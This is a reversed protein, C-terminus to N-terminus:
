EDEGVSREIDKLKQDSLSQDERNFYATVGSLDSLNFKELARLLLYRIRSSKSENRVIFENMYTRLRSRELEPVYQRFILSCRRRFEAKSTSKLTSQAGGDAESVITAAQEEYISALSAYPNGSPQAVSNENAPVSSFLDPQNVHADVPRRQGKKTKARAPTSVGATLSADEFETFAYPNQRLRLRARIEPPIDDGVM